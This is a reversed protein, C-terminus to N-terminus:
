LYGRVDQEEEEQSRLKHVLEAAQAELREIKEIYKANERMLLQLPSLLAAEAAAEAARPSAKAGGGGLVSANAANVM